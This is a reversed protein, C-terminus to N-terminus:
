TDDVVFIADFFGDAYGLLEIDDTRISVKTANPAIFFKLLMHSRPPFCCLMRVVRLDGINSCDEPVYRNAEALEDENNGSCRHVCFRALDRAIRCLVINSALPIYRCSEIMTDDHYMREFVAARQEDTMKLGDHPQVPYAVDHLAVPLRAANSAWGEKGNDDNFILDCDFYGPMSTGCKFTLTFQYLYPFREPFSDNRAQRWDVLLPLTIPRQAILHDFQCKPRLVLAYIRSPFSRSSAQGTANDGVSYYIWFTLDVDYHTTGTGYRELSAKYEDFTHELDVAGLPKPPLGNLRYLSAAVTAQEDDKISPLGPGHRTVSLSAGANVYEVSARSVGDISTPVDDTDSRTASLIQRVVDQPCHSALYLYLRARDRVDVDSHDAAMSSLVRFVGASVDHGLLLLRMTDLLDHGMSWCRLARAHGVMRVLVDLVPLPNTVLDTQSVIVHLLPLHAILREEPVRVLGAVLKDLLVLCRSRVIRGKNSLAAIVDAVHNVFQPCVIAVHVLFSVCEDLPVNPTSMWLTLFQFVLSVKISAAPESQFGRMCALTDFLDSPITCGPTSYVHVLACLKAYRLRDDDFPRPYLCPVLSRDRQAWEAIWEVYYCRDNCPVTPDSVRRTLEVSLDHHDISVRNGALEIARRAAAASTLGIRRCAQRICAQIVSEARVVDDRACIVPVINEITDLICQSSLGPLASIIRDVIRDVIHSRAGQRSLAHALVLACLRVGADSRHGDLLREWATSDYHLLSFDSSTAAVTGPRFQEIEYLCKAAMPDPLRGAVTRTVTALLEQCTHHLSTDLAIIITVVAALAIDDLPPGVHLLSKVIQAVEDATRLLAVANERLFDTLLSRVTSSANLDALTAAIRSLLRQRQDAVTANTVAARMVRGAMAWADTDDHWRFAASLLAAENDSIEGAM